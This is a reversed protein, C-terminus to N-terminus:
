AEELFITEAELEVVTVVVLVADLVVVAEDHAFEHAVVRPAVNVAPRALLYGQSDSHVAPSSVVGPNVM